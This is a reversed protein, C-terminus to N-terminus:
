LVLSLVEQCTKAPHKLMASVSRFESDRILEGNSFARQIFEVASDHSIMAAQLSAHRIPM